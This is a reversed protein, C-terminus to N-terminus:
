PHHCPVWDSGEEGACQHPGISWLGCVVYWLQVLVIRGRCCACVESTSPGNALLQLLESKARERKATADQEGKRARMLLAVLLAPLKADTSREMLLMVRELRAERHTGHMYRTIKGHPGLVANARECVEGALAVL